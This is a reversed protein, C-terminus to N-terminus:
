HDSSSLLHRRFTVVLLLIPKVRNIISIIFLLLLLSHGKVQSLYVVAFQVHTFHASFIILSASLKTLIDARSGYIALSM